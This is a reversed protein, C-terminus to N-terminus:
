AAPAAIARLRLEKELPAARKGQHMKGFVARVPLNYGFASTAERASIAHQADVVAEWNVALHYEAPQQAGSPDLFICEGSGVHGDVVRGVARM